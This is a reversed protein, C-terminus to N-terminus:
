QLREGLERILKSMAERANSLDDFLERAKTENLHPITLEAQCAQCIVNVSREFAEILRHANAATHQVKGSGWVKICIDKIMEYPKKIVCAEDMLRLANQCQAADPKDLDPNDVLLVVDRAHRYTQLSLGIRVATEEISLSETAELKLGVRTCQSLTKGEPVLIRPGRIADILSEPKLAIADERTMMPHIRGDALAADLVYEPLCTLVYMTGWSPPLSAQKVSKVTFTDAIKMFMCATTWSFPLKNAMERLSEGHEEQTANLEKGVELIGAVCTTTTRKWCKDIRDIRETLKMKNDLVPVTTLKM